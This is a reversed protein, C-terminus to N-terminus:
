RVEPDATEDAELRKVTEEVTVSGDRMQWVHSIRRILRVAGERSGTVNEFISFGESAVLYFLVVDDVQNTLGSFPGGAFGNATLVGVAGVAFYELVKYGTRRFARSSIKQGAKKAAAIGTVADIVMLTLVLVVLVADAAFLQAYIDGLQGLVKGLAAWLGTLGLAVPLRVGWDAFLDPLFRFM